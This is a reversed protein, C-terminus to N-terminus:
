DGVRFTVEKHGCDARVDFTHTGGPVKWVQHVTTTDCFQLKGLIQGDLSWEVDHQGECTVSFAFSVFLSELAGPPPSSVPYTRSNIPYIINVPANAM